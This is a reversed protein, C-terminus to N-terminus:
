DPSCDCVCETEKVGCFMCDSDQNKALFKEFQSRFGWSQADFGFMGAIDRFEEIMKDLTKDDLPIGKKNDFIVVVDELSQGGEALPKPELKDAM